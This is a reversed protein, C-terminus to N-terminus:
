FPISFSTGATVEVRGMNDRRTNAEARAFTGVSVIGNMLSSDYLIEAAHPRNDGGLPVYQTMPGIEGTTRDTVARSRMELGGQEVHLPQALSVRLSDTRSLIGHKLAAVEWASSVIGDRIAFLSQDFRTADTEGRTVSLGLQLGRSLDIDAGITTSRTDAGGSLSLAGAGQAGLLGTEEDLETYSVNATIRDSVDYSLAIRAADAKYPDLGIDTDIIQGTDPDQYDHRKLTQSFSMSVGVQEGLRMAAGAYGGGSAFGMLPDVGGTMPDHDSSFGFAGSRNGAMGGGARGGPALGTMMAGNGSGMQLTMAGNMSSLRIDSHFPMDGIRQIEDAARPTATMSLRWNGTQGLPATYQRTDSFRSGNKAWDILRQYLYSQTRERDHWHRGYEEGMVRSSLPILFDRHGGAYYEFSSLVVGRDEWLELVGPTLIADKLQYTSVYHWGSFVLLDDFAYPSLAAEVDLLGHGYVPDVGPEGLDQATKFIIDAILEPNRQLWPWRDEILTVTGAVLPAAFSTGSVRTVGGNDDSVLILEGPAVIFKNMLENDRRCHRWTVICAEGPMNSFPSIMDTPGVSGVIILQDLLATDADWRVDQTQMIGDNGAAKVIVSNRTQNVVKWDGLVDAWGEHLTWGPMGLSMNIVDADRRGLEILGSRVDNWNTTGTEDFPNYHTIEANPAIGMVGRGDHAGVLLSAVAAGHFNGDVYYGESGSINDLLDSDMTISADLLGITADTGAGLDQTISPRWNISGMWHDAHDMGTFGMLGDYFDLFFKSRDRADLDALSEPDDLDIGYEAYLSNAFGEHYSKGTKARVAGDWLAAATGDMEVLQRQLELLDPNSADFAAIDGWFANIDGWAPGMEGWFASIDGWFAGIDGYFAAIDGYFAAIDGYQAKLEGDFASIDGWFPHIDGYFAFPSIDGWFASIDGYFPSIDGYFPYIDGWFPSIDGYFANIDGYFPNVAGYKPDLEGGFASIDGYFAAIDGYYPSVEGSYAVLANDDADTPTDEAMVPGALAFAIACSATTIFYSTKRM